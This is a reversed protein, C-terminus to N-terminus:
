ITLKIPNNFCDTISFGIISFNNLQISKGIKDIIKTTRGILACLKTKVVIDIYRSPNVVINAENFPNNMLESTLESIIVRLLRWNNYLSRRLIIQGQMNKKTATNTEVEKIGTSALLFISDSDSYAPIQTPPIPKVVKIM